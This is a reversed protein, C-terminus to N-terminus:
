IDFIVNFTGGLAHTDNKGFGPVYWANDVLTRKNYIRMKYRISWGLHLMGWVRTELGAVFEGWHNIGRVGTYCFPTITGYVPDIMNPGDVDYKYSSFGYRVGVFIRGMSRANKAVNYDMGVRYYPSHVKYHLNSTENTHNSTGIGLEVIPFYRGRLNLRAAAEYQGYPTCAAMVMGCVDASVSVGALFPLRKQAALAAAAEDPSTYQVGRIATTQRKDNKVITTDKTMAVERHPQALLSSSALLLVFFSVFM